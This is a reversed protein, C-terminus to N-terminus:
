FNAGISFLFKSDASDYADVEKTLPYAFIFEGNVNETFDTRLGLGVSALSRDEIVDNDTEQNWVQGFDYFGFVEYDEIITNEDNPNWRLELSAGFGDDGVLESADYGRGFARGGVGFEESSLLPNNAWQGTLSTLVSFESNLTQLRSLNAQLKTFQPDGGTRTTTADDIQSANFADIGQSLTFSAETVAPRWITDFVSYDMGLRLASITDQTKFDDVVNTSILDRYDFRLTSFLNQTRSRIIPHTLDLGFVKSYGRVDFQALEFGPDTDSYSFDTGFVTGYSNVPMSYRLSTFMREDDDPDTVFQMEIREAAGFFNNLQGAVSVQTPGLFRSGYNDVNVSVNYPDFTPIILLDAGGVATQSPSIISRAELGAIDNVLLLWRELGEATLPNQETLNGALQLIRQADFGEGADQLSVNDIYGEVVRITVNGGDITQQPVIAQTIIFGDGRYKRTIQQAIAYVDTLAITTGLRDAWIQQLEAVDYATVGELNISNLVFTISEAGDPAGDVRVEPINIQPTTVQGFDPTPIATETQGVDASGPIDVGSSSQATAASAWFIATGSLLTIFLQQKITRTKLMSGSGEYLFERNRWYNHSHCIHQM